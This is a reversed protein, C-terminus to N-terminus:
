RTRDSVLSRRILVFVLAFVRPATQRLAVCQLENRRIHLATYKFEGMKQVIKAAYRWVDDVFRVSDRLLLHHSAMLAKSDYAVAAALQGLYRFKMENVHAVESAHKDCSPFHVIPSARMAETYTFPKRYGHSTFASDVRAAAGDLTSTKAWDLYGTLEGWPLNVANGDAGEALFRKWVQREGYDMRWQSAQRTKRQPMKATASEFRPSHEAWRVFDEARVVPVSARLADCNFFDCYDSVREGGGGSGSTKMAAVAIPGNDILYWPHRPPLVLTRRTLWAVTVFWEFAMRLNNFGGCDSEFTVFRDWPNPAVIQETSRWYQLAGFPRGGGSGVSRAQPAPQPRPLRAEERPAAHVSRGIHSRQKLWAIDRGLESKVAALNQRLVQKDPAAGRVLTIGVICLVLTVIACGAVVALCCSSSPGAPRRRRVAGKRSVRRAPAGPSVVGGEKALRVRM